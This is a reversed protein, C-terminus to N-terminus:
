KPWGLNRRQGVWYQAVRAIGLTEVESYRFVRPEFNAWSISMIHVPGFTIERRSVTSDTSSIM